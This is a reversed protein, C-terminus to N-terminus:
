QSQTGRPDPYRMLLQVPRSTNSSPLRALATEPLSPVTTPPNISNDDSPTLPPSPSRMYPHHKTRPQRRFRKVMLEIQTLFDQDTNLISFTFEQEQRHWELNQELKDITDSLFAYHWLIATMLPDTEFSDAIHPLLHPNTVVRALEFPSLNMSSSITSSFPMDLSNKGIINPSNSPRPLKQQRHELREGKKHWVIWSLDQVCTGTMWLAEM